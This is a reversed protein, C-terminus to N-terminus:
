AAPPSFISGAWPRSASPWRGVISSRPTPSPTMYIEGAILEARVEDGLAMFDDVTKLPRSTAMAGM